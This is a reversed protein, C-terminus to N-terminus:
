RRVAYYTTSINGHLLNEKVTFRASDGATYFDAWYIYCPRPTCSSSYTFMYYPRDTFQGFDFFADFKLPNNNWRVLNPGEQTITIHEDPLRWKRATGFPPAESHVVKCAYTGALQLNSHAFINYPEITIRRIVSDVKNASYAKLKVSYEGTSKYTHTPSEDISVINDGFNWSYRTSNLSQNQFLVPTSQEGSTPLTFAAVPPLAPENDDGKCSTLLTACALFLPTCKM